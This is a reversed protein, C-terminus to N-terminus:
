EEINQLPSLLMESNFKNLRCFYELIEKCFQKDYGQQKNYIDLLLNATKWNSVYKFKVSGWGSTKEKASPEFYQWFFFKNTKESSLLLRYKEHAYIVGDTCESGVFNDRVMFISWIYRKEEPENKDLHTLICLSNPYIESAKRPKGCNSGTLYTGTEVCWEEIVKQKNDCTFAVQSNESIPLRAHLRRKELDQKEKSLKIEIDRSNKAILNNLYQKSYNDTISLHDKFSDPFVFKKKGQSFQIDVYRDQIDVIIGEGLIKHRVTKNVLNM